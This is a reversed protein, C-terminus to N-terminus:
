PGAWILDFRLSELTYRWNGLRCPSSMISNHVFGSANVANEIPIL